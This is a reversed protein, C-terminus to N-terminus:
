QVFLMGHPSVMGSAIPTMNGTKADDLLVTGQGASYMSGSAFGSAATVKYILGAGTDTVLMSQSSAPAWRTDDVPWPNTYLTLFLESVSQTASGPNSVFVIESDAQSDLVLNGSPDVAMSDPDQLGGPNNTSGNPVLPDGLTANGSADVTVGAASPNIVHALANGMMVPTLHYTAGSSNLTLTYIAPKDFLNATTDLSPNSASTFVEGGIMQMDDLGGGHAPTADATYSTVSGASVDIVNLTPNADENSMAWITHSDFVMMGDNHGPVTYTKLVNGQLDYQVIQNTGAASNTSSISGDPQVSDGYAVFITSRSGTGLQVISDPKTYCGPSTADCAPPSSSKGPAQAFVSVTYGSTSQVSAPVAIAPASSAVPNGGGGCAALVASTAIVLLTKSHM